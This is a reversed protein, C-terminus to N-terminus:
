GAQRSAKRFKIAADRERIEQLRAEHAFDHVDGTRNRGDTENHLTENHVYTAPKDQVDDSRSGFVIM